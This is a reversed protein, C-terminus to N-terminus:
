ITAVKTDFDNTGNGFAFPNLAPPKTDSARKKRIQRVNMASM